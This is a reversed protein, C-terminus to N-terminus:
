KWDWGSTPSVAHDSGGKNRGTDSVGSCLGVGAADRSDIRARRESPRAAHDSGGKKRGEDAGAAHDSDPRAGEQASRPQMLDSAASAPHDPPPAGILQIRQM